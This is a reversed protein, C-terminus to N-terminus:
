PEWELEPHFLRALREVLLVLRPGPIFAYDDRLVYVRGRRVAEVQSLPQWDKRIAAEDQEIDATRPVLDIVVQPNLHLIGEASLVPFEGTVDACANQGGAMAIVRDFFGYSGAAYVDQIRGTGLIREAVLLVRPRPLGATKQAVRDLKTQMQSRLQQARPEVGCTRGITVLSDLIDEMRKHNVALTNLGLEQLRKATAENAERDIVLDPKLAVIAEFNPDLHGGVKARSRAEPPYQCFRTVGVVRDELGLAFLMETVSPSLSVIRRHEGPRPSAVEAHRDYWARVLLSGLAIATVM